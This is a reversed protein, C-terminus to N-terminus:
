PRGFKQKYEKYSHVLGNPNWAVHAMSSHRRNLDFKIPGLARPSALSMRPRTFCGATRCYPSYRTSRTPSRIASRSATHAFPRRCRSAPAGSTWTGSSPSQDRVASGQHDRHHGLLDPVHHRGAPGRRVPHLVIRGETGRKRARRHDSAHRGPWSPDRASLLLHRRGVPWRAARGRLPGQRNQLRGPRHLPRLDPRGDIECPCGLDCSCYEVYKGEILWDRAM